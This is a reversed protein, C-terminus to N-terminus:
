LEIACIAAAIVKTTKDNTKSVCLLREKKETTFPMNEHKGKTAATLNGCLMTFQLATVTTIHNFINMIDAM